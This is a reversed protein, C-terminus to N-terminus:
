TEKRHKLLCPAVNTAEVSVSPMVDGQIQACDSV